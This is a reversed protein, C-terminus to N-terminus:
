SGRWRTQGGGRAGCGFEAPLDVMLEFPDQPLGLILASSSRDPHTRPVHLRFALRLLPPCPLPVLGVAPDHRRLGVPDNTDRGFAPAGPAVTGEGDFVLVQCLPGDGVENEIPVAAPLHDRAVLALQTEARLAVPVVFRRGDGPQAVLDEAMGKLRPD